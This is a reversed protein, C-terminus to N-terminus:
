CQVRVAMRLRWLLADSNNDICLVREAAQYVPTTQVPEPVEKQFLPPLLLGAVFDILYIQLIRKCIRRHRKKHELSQLDTYLPM